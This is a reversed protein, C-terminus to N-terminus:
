ATAPERVRHQHWCQTDTGTPTGLLVRSGPVPVFHEPRLVLGTAPHRLLDPELLWRQAPDNRSLPNLALELAGPVATVVLPSGVPALRGTLDYRWLQAADRTDARHLALDAGLALDPATCPHLRILM